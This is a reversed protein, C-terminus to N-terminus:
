NEMMERGRVRDLRAKMILEDHKKQDYNENVFTKKFTKLQLEEYNGQYRSNFRNLRERRIDKKRNLHEYNLPM